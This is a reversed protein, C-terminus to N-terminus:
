EGASLSDKLQEVERLSLGTAESEERADSIQAHHDRAFKLDSEYIRRDSENLSAISGVNALRQFVANQRTFAVNQMPGM